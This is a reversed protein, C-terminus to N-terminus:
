IKVKIVLFGKLKKMIVKHKLKNIDYCNNYLMLTSMYEKKAPCNTLLKVLHTPTQDSHLQDGYPSTLILHGTRACVTENNYKHVSLLCFRGKGVM